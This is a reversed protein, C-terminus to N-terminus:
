KKRPKKIRGLNKISNEDVYMYGEEQKQICTLFHDSIEDLRKSLEEPTKIYGTMFDSFIALYDNDMLVFRELETDYGLAADERYIIYEGNQYKIVNGQYLDFDNYDM